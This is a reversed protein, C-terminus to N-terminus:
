QTVQEAIPKAQRMVMLLWAIVALSVVFTVFFLALVGWNSVVTRSWVDFGKAELTLDRIGDRSVVAGCISAFGTLWAAGTLAPNFKKLGIQAGGLLLTLVAGGAWVMEALHYLSNDTLGSQVGAPQTQFVMFGVFLQLLGGVITLAGGARRLLIKADDDITVLGSHLIFWLGSILLGGSMMFAWRPLATPDYPPMYIGKASHDYMGHWVEPRLMLTMNMTLIRGVGAALILALLALLAAPKGAATRYQVIYMIGYCAMLLFIVGFWIAAILDSSTYLARGYLVQAFLLPPIGLNIVFTMVITVRKALVAAVTKAAAGGSRGQFSFWVIGVLSGILIQVAVFHLALTLLLLAKM